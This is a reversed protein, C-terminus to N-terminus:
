EISNIRWGPKIRIITVKENHAEWSVPGEDNAPFREYIYISKKAKSYTVKTKSNYSFQPVFGDLVDSAPIYWGKGDNVMCEKIFFIMYKPTFHPSLIKKINEKSRPKQGLSLQISYARKLITFAENRKLHTTSKSTTAAYINSSHLAFLLILSILIRGALKAINKM